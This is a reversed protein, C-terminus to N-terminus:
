EAGFSDGNPQQCLMGTARAMDLGEKPKPAYCGDGLSWHQGCEPQRMYQKHLRRGIGAHATGRYEDITVAFPHEQANMDTM